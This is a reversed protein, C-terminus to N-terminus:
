GSFSTFCPSSYTIQMKHFSSLDFDLRFPHNKTLDQQDSFISWLYQKIREPTLPGIGVKCTTCSKSVLDM